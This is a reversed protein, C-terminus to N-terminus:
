FDRFSSMKEIKMELRQQTTPKITVHILFTINWEFVYATCRSTKLKGELWLRLVGRRKILAFWICSYSQRM